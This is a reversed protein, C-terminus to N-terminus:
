IARRLLKELALIQSDGVGSAMIERLLQRYTIITAGLHELRRTFVPLFEPECTTILDIPLFVDYGDLLHSISERTLANELYAGAIVIAKLDQISNRQPTGLPEIWSLKADVHTTSAFPRKLLHALEELENRGAGEGSGPESVHVFGVYSFSILPLRTMSITLFEESALSNESRLNPSPSNWPEQELQSRNSRHHSRRESM